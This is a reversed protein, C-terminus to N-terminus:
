AAADKNEEMSRHLATMAAQDTKFSHGLDVGRYLGGDDPRLTIFSWDKDASDFIVIGATSSVDDYFWRKEILWPMGARYTPYRTQFEAKSTEHIM